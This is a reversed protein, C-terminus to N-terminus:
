YTVLLDVVWLCTLSKWRTLKKECKEIVINWIVKSKSKAGLSMRLYITPLSGVDGGLITSLQAMDSVENIPYLCSKRWNIHLGSIGEFLVLIVRLHKLQEGNADCFILTDDAYQLYTIELSSNDNMDLEFGKIWGRTNTTKIMNSLGEIALIFMFPSLPDDLRLGRHAGVLSGNILVSFTM